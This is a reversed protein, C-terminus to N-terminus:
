SQSDDTFSPSVLCWTFHLKLLKEHEEPTFYEAKAQLMADLDFGLKVIAAQLTKEFESGIKEADSLVGATNLEQVAVCVAQGLQVKYQQETLTSVAPTVACGALFFALTAILSKLKM